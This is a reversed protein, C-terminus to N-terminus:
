ITIGIKGIAHGAESYRHAEAIESLPYTRDVIPKVKGIEIQEKLYKLDVGSPKVVIVKAKRASLVSTLVAQLFNQPLPQTTIYIGNPKLISKCRSFSQSGIVDFIVDYQTPEQTFDQQHYDIVRDVGLSRVLDMSRAGCVATVEAGLAKGVQVAFTGVGGSAGNILLKQGVELRGLDRLAQLATLGTLPVVGAELDSLNKPKPAAIAEPIAIYEAYAGGSPQNSFAYVADGPKFQTVQDGIAVVEGALDFGLIMPFKLGPLFRFIGRRIKCDLPNVSSARVRILLQDPKIHPREVMRYEFVDPAGYKNIVAASMMGETAESGLPTVNPSTTM